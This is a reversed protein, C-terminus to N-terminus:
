DVWGKRYKKNVYENAEPINTVKANASDWQIKKGPGVHAALHGILVMETLACSKNVFDSGAEPRGHLSLFEETDPHGRSNGRLAQSRGDKGPLL